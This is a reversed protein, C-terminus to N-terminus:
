WVRLSDLFQIVRPSALMGPLQEEYEQRYGKTELQNKIFAEQSPESWREYLTFKTPNESDQHLFTLVFTDEKAMQEIVNLAAQKWEEVHEPKLDFEVYFALDDESPKRNPNVWEGKTDLFTIIRPSALQEPLTEEYASRYPKANLQNEFFAERTPESWREYLSFRTSDETDQHLYTEVFTDEKSMQDIVKLAGQKWEEVKEPKCHFQVYFALHNSM